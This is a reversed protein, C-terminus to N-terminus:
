KTPQKQMLIVLRLMNQRCLKYPNKLIIVKAKRSDEFVVRAISFSDGKDVAFQWERTTIEFWDKTMSKTAKVEIYEKSQEGGGIVLDFPLGTETEKNVWKVAAPGMKEVFYKYAALEGLRGIKKAESESLAGVLLRDRMTVSTSPMSDGSGSDAGYSVNFTQRDSLLSRDVHNRSDHLLSKDTTTTLNQLPLPDVLEPQDVTVWEFMETPAQWDETSIDLESGNTSCDELLDGSPATFAQTRYNNAKAFRFDPASKWNSPPWKSVASSKLKPQPIHESAMPLVDPAPSLSSSLGWVSENESLKQVKQSNVIFFETQEETSGSEAMTTVMHLFNALHLNVSGNFFFRSLELFLSHADSTRVM